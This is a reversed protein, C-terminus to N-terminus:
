KFLGPQTWAVSNFRNVPFVHLVIPIKFFDVINLLSFYRRVKGATIKIFRVDEKMLLDSDYPSDSMFIIEVGIMREEQILVRLAEIVAIIPYFHGGTGGGTFLIKM